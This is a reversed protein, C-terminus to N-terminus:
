IKQQDMWFMEPRIYNSYMDVQNQEINLHM